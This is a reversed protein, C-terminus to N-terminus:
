DKQKTIMQSRCGVSSPTTESGQSTMMLMSLESHHNNCCSVCYSCIFGVPRRQSKIQHLELGMCVCATAAFHLSCLCSFGPHKSLPITKSMFFDWLSLICVSSSKLYVESLHHDASRQLCLFFQQLVTVSLKPCLQVSCLYISIM